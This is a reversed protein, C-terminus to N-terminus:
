HAGRVAARGLVVLLILAGLQTAGFVPSGQPALEALTPFKQLVQVILVFVNFYLSAVSTIVFTRRWGGRLHQGYYAVIAVALLVLSIVAVVHSPLIQTSPFGFGTVNTLVTTVLFTAIWGSFWAGGMLGGIVVFGAFLAVLSLLVHVFTFTSLDGFM